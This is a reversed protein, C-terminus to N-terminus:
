FYLQFKSVLLVLGFIFIVFMALYRLFDASIGTLNVIATLFLTFFSFSVIFGAIVGFPYKRDGITAGSLIIPLVPLICPSLITVIGALFAFGILILM